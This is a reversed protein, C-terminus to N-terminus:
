ENEDKRQPKVSVVSNDDKSVLIIQDICFDNSYGNKSRDNAKTDPSLQLTPFSYTLNKYSYPFVFDEFLTLTDVKVGNYEIPEPTSISSLKLKGKSDLEDAVYNLTASLKHRVPITDGNVVKGTGRGSTNVTLVITSDNSTMYYNPVMVVKVDYKGSMVESEQNEGMTGVLAFEITPKASETTPFIYYFNNKGVKGTTNCWTANNSFSFYAPSDESLNKWDEKKYFTGNNLEVIVDPKYLKAPINWHDALIGYGNSMKVKQGNLMTSKDWNSDTRLTDGYTNILYQASAGQEEIFKDAKWTGKRGDANPQINVNFCLPSIIDMNISQRTLSDKEVDTMERYATMSRNAKVNDLYVPAYKYLPALRNYAEQWAADTPVVMVFSSDESQINAGFSEMATLDKEPNTISYRHTGSFMTNTTQYVSDVYTPLGNEDAPGELSSFESFYTTDRAVMYNHFRTIGLAQANLGDKIYEYLNYRFPLMQSTTHLTGNSAAINAQSLPLGAFTKEKQDFVMIKGNLMRLTDVTGNSINNRWLAISNAVLQQQVNYGNTKALEMWQQYSEETFADNEPAWVTLLQSGNLLEDFTFDKGTANNKMPHKEDRYYRSAQLISAFRTLKPNQQIQQWLTEKAATNFESGDYHEDWTDSCGPLTM